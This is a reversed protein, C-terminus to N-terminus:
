LEGVQDESLYKRIETESNFNGLAIMLKTIAAEKTMKEGSIANLNSLVTGAEYKGMEMGGKLCESVVLVPLNLASLKTYIPDDVKIPLTGSGFVSIVIGKVLDDNLCAHIARSNFGPSISLYFISDEIKKFFSSSEVNKKVTEIYEIENSLTALVPHNPSDFGDISKSDIKTVCSGRFLNKHFWVSVEKVVGDRAVKLANTFNPVGDSEKECIPIQSGTLIIPKKVGKLLFSLASSTYALTDTGHLVVFGDFEDIDARIVGVIQLWEKPGIFASDLPKEFAEFTLDINIKELSPVFSLLYDISSPVYFGADSKIMGITGGTYIVKIKPKM